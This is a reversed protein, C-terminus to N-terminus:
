LMGSSRKEKTNHITSLLASKRKRLLHVLDSRGNLIRQKEKKKLSNEKLEKLQKKYAPSRLIDVLIKNHLQKETASRKRLSEKRKPIQLNEKNEKTANNSMNFSKSIISECYRILDGDLEEDFSQNHSKMLKIVELYGECVALLQLHPNTPVEPIFSGDLSSVDPVLIKFNTCYNM